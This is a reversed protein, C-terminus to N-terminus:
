KLNNLMILIIFNKKSVNESEFDFIIKLNECSAAVDLFDIGFRVNSIDELWKKIKNRYEGEQKKDIKRNHIFSRTFLLHISIRSDSLARSVNYKRQRVAFKNAEKREDETLIDKSNDHESIKFGFSKLYFYIFYKKSDLAHRMVSKNTPIYAIKLSANKDIFDDIKLVNENEIDKKLELRNEAIKLLKSHNVSNLLFNEPFPFDSIELLDCLIDLQKTEFAFTSIRVQHDFPLQKILHSWYTILYDVVEVNKNELASFLISSETHNNSSISAAESDNAEEQEITYITKLHSQVETNLVRGNSEFPADLAAFFEFKSGKKAIELIMFAFFDESLNLIRLFRLKLSSYQIESLNTLMEAEFADPIAVVLTSLFNEYEINQQQIFDKSTEEKFFFKSLNSNTSTLQLILPRNSGFISLKEKLKDIKSNLEKIFDFSNVEVIFIFLNPYNKSELKNIVAGLEDFNWESSFLLIKCINKDIKGNEKAIKLVVNEQIKILNNTLINFSSINQNSSQQDALM